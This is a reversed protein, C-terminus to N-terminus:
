YGRVWTVREIRKSARYRNLPNEATYVLTEAIKEALDLDQARLARDAISLLRGALRDSAAPVSPLEALLASVEEEQDKRLGVNRRLDPLVQGRTLYVYRLAADGPRGDSLDLLTVHRLLTDESAMARACAERTEPNALTERLEARGASPRPEMADIAALTEDVAPWDRAKLLCPFEAQLLGARQGEDLDPALLARSGLEIAEPCRDLSRLCAMAAAAERPKGERSYLDEYLPLAGPWDGVNRRTEAERWPEPVRPGLKPCAQSLYGPSLEPDFTDRTEAITDTDVPLAALFARWESDLTAIPMGYAKEFDLTQEFSRFRDIGRSLILYGVFSGAADYANSEDIDYFGLVSMLEGARPLKGARLAAALRVHAEPVAVYDSSWAQALGELLGRRLVVGPAPHFEVNLAHVLEHRLTGEHVEWWPMSLVRVGAHSAAIGTLDRQEEVSDFLYIWVPEHPAMGWQSGLEHWCWEAERAVADVFPVGWGAPAYRIVFHETRREGSLHAKVEGWGWGLGVRTGGFIGLVLLLSGFPIMALRALRGSSGPARRSNVGQAAMWVFAALLVVFLRQQVQVRSLAMAARQDLALPEGVLFDVVHPGWLMQLLDQALSLLAVLAFLGVVTRNRVGRNGATSGAVAALLALPAWTIWFFAVGDEFRCNPGRANAVAMATFAALGSVACCTFTILLGLNLRSDQDRGDKPIRRAVWTGLLLIGLASGLTFYQTFEHDLVGLGRVLQSAVVLVTAGALALGLAAVGLWAVGVTSDSGRSSPQSATM